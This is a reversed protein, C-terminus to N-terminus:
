QILSVKDLHSVLSSAEQLEKSNRMPSASTEKKVGNCNLETRQGIRNVWERVGSHVEQM